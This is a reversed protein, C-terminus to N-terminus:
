TAAAAPAARPETPWHGLRRLERQTRWCGYVDFLAHATMVAPLSGTWHYALGLILSILAICAMFARSGPHALTFLVTAGVIAAWGPLYDSAFVQLGGRFLAEEGIGASFSIVLIAGWGFPRETSFVGRGMERALREQGAPWLAFVLLHLGILGATLLLGIGLGSWSLAVFDAAERGSWLWLGIGAALFLAQQVILFALVKPEDAAKIMVEGM